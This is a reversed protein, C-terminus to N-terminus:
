RFLWNWDANQNSHRPTHPQIVTVLPNVHRYNLRQNGTVPVADANRKDADPLRKKGSSILDLRNTIQDFKEKYQDPNGERISLFHCAMYAAMRRVFRSGNLQDPAYLKGIQFDIEDTAEEIAATLNETETGADLTEDDNIDVRTIVGLDSFIEAMEAQTSYTYVHSAM